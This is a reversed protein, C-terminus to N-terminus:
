SMKRVRDPLFGNPVGSGGGFLDLVEGVLVNAPFQVRQPLYAIAGPTAPSSNVLVEGSHGIVGALCALFTSKGAGNPGTVAVLSAPEFDVSVSDLVVVQGYRKGLQRTSLRPEAAM